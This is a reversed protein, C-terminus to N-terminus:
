GTERDRRRRADDLSAVPPPPPAIAAKRARVQALAAEAAADDGAEMAARAASRFADIVPDSSGSNQRSPPTERSVVPATADNGPDPNRANPPASSAERAGRDAEFDAARLPKGTRSRDETSADIMSTEWKRPVTARVLTRSITERNTEREPDDDDVPARGATAEIEAATLAGLGLGIRGVAVDLRLLKGLGGHRGQWDTHDYTALMTSTEHGTRKMIYAESMEYYKALTIFTARTDHARMKQDGATLREWLERRAGCARLLAVLRAAWKDDNPLGSFPGAWGRTAPVADRVALLTEITGPQAHWRDTRKNKRPGVIIEGTEPLIRDWLLLDLLESIRCGERNATGFLARVLLSGLQVGECEALGTYRCMLFDDHPHMFPYRKPADNVPPRHERKLPQERIVQCPYVAIELLRHMAQWYSNRTADRKVTAPLNAYAINAHEVTFAALPVDGLVGYIPVPVTYLYELKSEDDGLTKKNLDSHRYRRFLDGGTYAEGLERVTEWESSRPTEPALAEGRAICLDFAADSEQEAANSLIVKAKATMALAAARELGVIEPTLKRSLEVLRLARREYVGADVTRITIRHQYSEGDPRIGCRIRCAHYGDKTITAKPATEFKAM